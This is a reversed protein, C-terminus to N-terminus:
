KDANMLEKSLDEEIKPRVWSLMDKPFLRAKVDVSRKLLFLPVADGKAQGKRKGKQVLPYGWIIKNGSKSTRVFTDGWLSEDTVPGKVEGSGFKAAPLPITLYPHGKPRITTVQGRPGVHVGAYISGFNIGSKVVDLNATGKDVSAPIFRTTKRLFGSRSSVTTDTPSRGTILDKRIHGQLLIANKNVVRLVIQLIRQKERELNKVIKDANNTM